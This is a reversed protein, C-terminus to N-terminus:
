VVRHCGRVMDDKCWGTAVSEGSDGKVWETIITQLKRHFRLRLMQELLVFFITFVIVFVYYLIYMTIVKVAIFFIERPIQMKM